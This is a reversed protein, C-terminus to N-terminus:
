DIIQRMNELFVDKRFVQARMECSQRMARARDANMECVAKMVKEPTPDGQILKGTEGELISELLGGEAVGVVPKGASMSEVASMGFDEEKPIYLTAISNGVLWSLQRDDVPGTFTINENGTALQKLMAEHPGSSAIVLKKDPMKSFAKIIIDIRKLPDLRAMSLYYHEQGIWKFKKTECPPYVVQADVNFYKKVRKRVNHSNVVVVDMQKLADQYLPQFLLMHLNFLHVRRWFPLTSLYYDKLDYLFRPPTHCYFINKGNPHNRAALPSYVGSYIVQRYDKLFKTRKSFAWLRKLTHAGLVDPAIAKLDIRKGNFDSLDFSDSTARGYALDLELGRCLIDVLREGGGKFTFEDHVVISKSETM